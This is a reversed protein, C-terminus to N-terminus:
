GITALAEKQKLLFQAAQHRSYRKWQCLQTIADELAKQKEFTLNNSNILQAAQKIQDKTM